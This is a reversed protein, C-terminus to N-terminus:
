VWGLGSAVDRALFETFVRAFLRRKLLRDTDLIRGDKISRRSPGDNRTTEQPLSLFHLRSNIKFCCDDAIKDSPQISIVQLNSCMLLNRPTPPSGSALIELQKRGRY